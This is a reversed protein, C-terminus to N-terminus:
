KPGIIKRLTHNQTGVIQIRIIKRPTHKKRLRHNTHMHDKPIYSKHAYSKKTHIIQMVISRKRYSIILVRIFLCHIRVEQIEAESLM